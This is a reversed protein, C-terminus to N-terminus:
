GRFKRFNTFSCYKVKSGRLNKTSRKKEQDFENKLGLFIKKANIASFFNKKANIASFVKKLM